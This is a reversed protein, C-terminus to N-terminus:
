WEEPLELRDPALDIIERQVLINFEEYIPETCHQQEEGLQELFKEGKWIWEVPICIGRDDETAFSSLVIGIAKVTLGTQPTYHKIFVVDETAICRFTGLLAAEGPDSKDMCVVGHDLASETHREDIGFFTTMADEMGGLVAM